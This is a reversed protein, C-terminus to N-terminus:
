AVRATAPSFSVQKYTKAETAGKPTKSVTAATVHVRSGKMGDAHVADNVIEDTAGEIVRREEPNSPAAVALVFAKVAGLQMSRNRGGKDLMQIWSCKMGANPGDEISSEVLFVDAPLNNSPFLRVKEIIANFSGDPFPPNREFVDATNLGALVARADYAAPAPAGQPQAAPAAQGPTAPPAKQQYKSFDLGM